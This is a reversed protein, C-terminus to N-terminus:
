VHMHVTNNAALFHFLINTNAKLVDLKMCAQTPPGVFTQEAQTSGRSGDNDKKYQKLNYAM